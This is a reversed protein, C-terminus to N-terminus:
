MFFYLNTDLVVRQPVLLERRCIKWSDGHKRLRDNRGGILLREEREGRNRCVLFNSHTELENAVDTGYAEVNTILHRIRSPPDEMWVLNTDLRAVREDLDAYNDDYVAAPFEPPPRRDARYREEFIPLYYHIDEDVMDKLWERYRKESFMRAERYYFQEIEHHLDRSVPTPM